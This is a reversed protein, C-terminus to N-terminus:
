DDRQIRAVEGVFEASSASNKHPRWFSPWSTTCCLICSNRPSSSLRSCFFWDSFSINWRPFAIMEWTLLLLAVLREMHQPDQDKWGQLLEILETTTNDDAM